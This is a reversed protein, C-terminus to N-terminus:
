APTVPSVWADAAVLVGFDGPAVAVVDGEFLPVCDGLFCLQGFSPALELLLEFVLVVTEKAHRASGRPKV